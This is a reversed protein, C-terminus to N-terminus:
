FLFLCWTIFEDDNTFSVAVHSVVWSSISTDYSTVLRYGDIGMSLTTVM